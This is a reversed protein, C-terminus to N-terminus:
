LPLLTQNKFARKEQVFINELVKTSSDQQGFILKRTLKSWSRLEFFSLTSKGKILIRHIIFVMIFVGFVCIYPLDM